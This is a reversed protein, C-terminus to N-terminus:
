LSDIAFSKQYLKMMRRYVVMAYYNNQAELLLKEPLITSTDKKIKSNNRKHDRNVDANGGFSHGILGFSGFVNGDLKSQLMHSLKPIHVEPNAIFSEWNLFIRKNDNCHPLMLNSYSDTYVRLYANVSRLSPTDIPQTKRHKYQSKYANEPKKFLVIENFNAKPDLKRTISYNKDGFVVTQASSRQAIKKYYHEPNNRIEERFNDPFQKCETDGCSHCPAFKSNSNQTKEGRAESSYMSIRHSEGFCEVDDHASFFHGLYTSGCHSVGSLMVLHKDIKTLERPTDTSYLELKKSLKKTNNNLAAMSLHKQIIQPQNHALSVNLLANLLRISNPVSKLAEELYSSHGEIDGTYFSNFALVTLARWNKPNLELAKKAFDLCNKTESCHDFERLAVFGLLSSQVNSSLTNSSLAQELKRKVFSNNQEYGIKQDNANIEKILSNANKM